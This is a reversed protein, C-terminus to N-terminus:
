SQEEDNGGLWTIELPKGTPVLPPDKDPLTPSFKVPQRAKIKKERAIRRCVACEELRAEAPHLPRRHPEGYCFIQGVGEATVLEVVHRLDQRSTAVSDGVQLPPAAPAPPPLSEKIGQVLEARESERLNDLQLEHEDLIAGAVWEPEAALEARWRPDRRKGWELGLARWSTAAGFAAPPLVAGLLREQEEDEEEVVPPQAARAAAGDFGELVEALCSLVEARTPATLPFCNERVFAVWEVEGDTEQKYLVINALGDQLAAAQLPSKQVAARLQALERKVRELEAQMAEQGPSPQAALPLQQPAPAAGTACLSRELSGVVARAGEAASEAIAARARARALAGQLSSALTTRAREEASIKPARAKTAM